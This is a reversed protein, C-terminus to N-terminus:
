RGPRTWCVARFPRHVRHVCRVTIKDPAVPLRGQTAESQVGEGEGDRARARRSEEARGETWPCSLFFVVGSHAAGCRNGGRRGSGGGTWTARALAM